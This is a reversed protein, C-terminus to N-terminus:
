RARRRPTRGCRRPRRAPWDSIWSRRRAEPTIMINAPKIDRHVIGRAHATALADAIEGGITLIKELELRSATIRRDLTEGEIFQMVIFPRGADEGIEYIACINPHDLMAAARAERLLRRDSHGGSTADEKLFKIAVRRDLKTDHALYVEGMGGAGLQDLIRYHGALPEAFM